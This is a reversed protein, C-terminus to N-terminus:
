TVEGLRAKLEAVEVKLREIEARLETIVQEQYDIVRWPGDHQYRWMARVFLGALAAVLGIGAGTWATAPVDM